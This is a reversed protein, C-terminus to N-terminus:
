LIDLMKKVAKIYSKDPNKIYIFINDIYIIVFLNLNKAIIKNIYSQFSVLVNSLGFSMIQYKFFGYKIYFVM